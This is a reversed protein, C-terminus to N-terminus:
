GRNFAISVSVIRDHPMWFDSYDDEFIGFKKGGLTSNLDILGVVEVVEQGNLDLYTLEVIRNM